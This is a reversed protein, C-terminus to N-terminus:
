RSWKHVLPHIAYIGSSASIEKILPFSKLVRIGERFFFQNWSQDKELQLLENMCSEVKQEMRRQHQKSFEVAAKRFAAKIFNEHHLFAATELILISAQAAARSQDDSKKNAM